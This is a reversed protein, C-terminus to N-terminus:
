PPLVVYVLGRHVFLLRLVPSPPSLANSSPITLLKLTNTLLGWPPQNQKVIGTVMYEFTRNSFGESAIVFITYQFYGAPGSHTHTGSLIVNDRRYLSGYKSQLRNLVELRLRQSIMGIDVSVFVIRRNPGTPEAMIFARSYLRTLIGRANQGSKGYGM